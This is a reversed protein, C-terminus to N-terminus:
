VIAWRLPNILAQALGHVQFWGLGPSLSVSGDRIPELDGTTRSKAGRDCASASEPPSPVRSSALADAVVECQRGGSLTESRKHSVM